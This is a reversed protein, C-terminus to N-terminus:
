WGGKCAVAQNECASPQNNMDKTTFKYKRSDPGFPDIPASGKMGSAFYTYGASESDLVVKSYFVYYQNGFLDMMDSCLNWQHGNNIMKYVHENGLYYGGNSDSFGYKYAQWGQDLGFGENIQVM